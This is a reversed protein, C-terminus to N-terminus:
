INTFIATPSRKSVEDEKESETCNQKREQKRTGTGHSRLKRKVKRVLDTSSLFFVNGLIHSFVECNSWYVLKKEEKKISEIGTRGFNMANRM